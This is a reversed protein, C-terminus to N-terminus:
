LWAGAVNPRQICFLSIAESPATPLRQLQKKMAGVAAMGVRAHMGGETRAFGAGKNSSDGETDLTANAQTGVVFLMILLDAHKHALVDVFPSISLKGFPAECSKSPSLCVPFGRQAGTPFLIPFLSPLVIICLSGRTTPFMQSLSIQLLDIPVEILPGITAALAEESNIGFSGVAVAIALEFNNSSATFSQSVTEAYPIRLSRCIAVSTFFLLGFYLLLPVAVRAVQGPRDIIHQAQISFLVFITYLLGILAWPGIFPIFKQEYWNDGIARKLSFRTIVGAVLPVGLFLLVSKAVDWSNVQVGSGGSVVKLYFLSVPTYLIIQLVSNVAVLVACLQGDGKALDNWILVMAICRAIGVLIVGARYDPLDPLTAWALGTMLAPGVIWNLIFSLLLNQSVTEFADKIEKVYYGVLIALAMDILIWVYLYRDLFSLRKFIGGDTKRSFDDHFIEASCKLEEGTPLIISATERGELDQSTCRCNFTCSGDGVSSGQVDVYSGRRYFRCRFGEEGHSQVLLSGLREPDTVTCTVSYEDEEGKIERYEMGYEEVDGIESVFAM